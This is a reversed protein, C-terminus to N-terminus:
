VQSSRVSFGLTDPYHCIKLLKHLCMLTLWFHEWVLAVLMWRNQEFLIYALNTIHHLSCLNCSHSYRGCSDHTHFSRCVIGVLVKRGIQPHIFIPGKTVLWFINRDHQKDVERTHLWYCYHTIPALLLSGWVLSNVAFEESPYTNIRSWMINYKGMTNGM